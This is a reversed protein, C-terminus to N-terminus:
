SPRVLSRLVPVSGAPLWLFREAFFLELANRSLEVDAEAHILDTRSLLFEHFRHLDEVIEEHTMSHTNQIWDDLILRARARRDRFHSVIGGHEQLLTSSIATARVLGTPMPLGLPAALEEMRDQEYAALLAGMDLRVNMEPNVIAM